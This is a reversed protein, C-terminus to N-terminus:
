FRFQISLKLLFKIEAAKEISIAFVFVLIKAPHSFGYVLKRLWVIQKSFFFYRTSFFFYRTVLLFYCPVLLSYFTEGWNFFHILFQLQFIVCALKKAKNAIKQIYISCEDNLRILLQTSIGSSFFVNWKCSIIWNCTWCLFQLLLIPISYWIFMPFLVLYYLYM